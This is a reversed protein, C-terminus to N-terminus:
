HAHKQVQHVQVRLRQSCIGGGEGERCCVGQFARAAELLIRAGRPLYHQAAASPRSEFAGLFLPLHRLYIDLLHKRYSHVLDHFFRLSRKLRENKVTSKFPTNVLVYPPGSLCSHNLIILGVLSILLRWCALILDARYYSVDTNNHRTPQLNTKLLRYYTIKFHIYLLVPM